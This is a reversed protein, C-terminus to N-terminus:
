FASSNTRGGKEEFKHLVRKLISLFVETAMPLKTIPTIIETMLQKLATM